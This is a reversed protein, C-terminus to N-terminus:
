TCRCQRVYDTVPNVINGLGSNQLYVVPYNNTSLNYGSAIAVANGENSAIINDCNEEIFDCFSSLQSDPVGCFFDVGISNLYEVFDNVYIM